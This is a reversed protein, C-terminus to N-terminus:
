FFKVEESRPSIRPLPLLEQRGEMRDISRESDIDRPTSRTPISSRESDMDRPTSRTPIGTSTKDDDSGKSVIGAVEGDLEDLHLQLFFM